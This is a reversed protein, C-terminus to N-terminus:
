AVVLRKVQCTTVGLPSAAEAQRLRKEAVAEVVKRRHLAKKTWQIAEEAV